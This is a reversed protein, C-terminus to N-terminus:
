ASRAAAAITAAVDRAARNVGILTASAPGCWDGYGVFLVRPEDVAEV